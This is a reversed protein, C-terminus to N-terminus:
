GRSQRAKPIGSRAFASSLNAKLIQLCRAATQCRRLMTPTSLDWSQAKPRHQLNPTTSATLSCRCALYMPCFFSNRLAFDRDAMSDDPRPAATESVHRVNSSIQGCGVLFNLAAMWEETSLRTERAFDHLHTVLRSMLYKLRTDTCQANILNTNPTINDITLDLLPPGNYGAAM